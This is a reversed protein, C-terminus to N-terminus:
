LTIDANTLWLGSSDSFTGAREIPIGARTGSCECPWMHSLHSAREFLFTAKGGGRRSGKGSCCRRSHSDGNTLKGVAVGM